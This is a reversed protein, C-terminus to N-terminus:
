PIVTVRVTDSATAGADDMAEVRITVETTDVIETDLFVFTNWTPSAAPREILVDDLYVSVTDPAAACSAAIM